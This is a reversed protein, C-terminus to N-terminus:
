VLNRLETLADVTMVADAEAEHLNDTKIGFHECISQLSGSIDLPMKGALKLFQLVSSVDLLRYSVFQEWTARKMLKDCIHDIDGHVNKGIPVLHQIGGTQIKSWWSVTEYIKTGAQKYPIAIKDHKALDIKNIEMARGTVHYIGDDPKVALCLKDVQRLEDSYLVFALTLLSKDLGIGGTETDISVYM